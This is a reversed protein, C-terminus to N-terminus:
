LPDTCSATGAGSFSTGARPLAAIRGLALWLVSFVPSPDGVWVGTTTWLTGAWQSHSAQFCNRWLFFAIYKSQTGLGVWLVWNLWYHLQFVLYLLNLFAFSHHFCQGTNKEVVTSIENMDPFCCKTNNGCISLSLLSSHWVNKTRLCQKM